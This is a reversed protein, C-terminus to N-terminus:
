VLAPVQFETDIGLPVRKLAGSERETIVLFHLKQVLQMPSATKGEGERYERHQDVLSDKRIM